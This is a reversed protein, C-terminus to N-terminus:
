DSTYERMHESIKEGVIIRIKNHYVSPINDMENLELVGAAYDGRVYRLGNPTKFAMRFNGGYEPDLEEIWALFQVSNNKCGRIINMYDSLDTRNYFRKLYEILDDMTHTPHEKIYRNIEKKLETAELKVKNNDVEPSANMRPKRKPKTMKPKTMKPKTMKPKCRKPTKPPFLLVSLMLDSNKGNFYYNYATGLHIYKGSELEMYTNNNKTASLKIDKVITFGGDEIYRAQLGTITPLTM